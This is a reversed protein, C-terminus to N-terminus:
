VGRIILLTRDDSVAASGGFADTTDFFEAAMEAAGHDPLRDALELLRDQGFLEGDADTAESFGDTAAILVDGPGLRLEVDLGEWDPLVGIPVGDARVIRAPGGVPRYIM